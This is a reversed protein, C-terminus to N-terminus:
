PSALSALTVASWLGQCRYASRRWSYNVCLKAGPKRHLHRSRRPYETVSFGLEECMRLMATNERLVQGEVRKLGEARAYDLM